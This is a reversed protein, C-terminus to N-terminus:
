VGLNVFFMLLKPKRGKIKEKAKQAAEKAAEVLDDKQSIGIGTHVLPM